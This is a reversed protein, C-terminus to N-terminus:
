TVTHGSRELEVLVALRLLPLLFEHRGVLTIGEKVPRGVVNTQARYQPIMDLNAAVLGELANGLNHAVNVAKLFVEPLVVASGVNLWVGGAMKGVASCLVRFDRHSAEGVPGPPFAPHMHVIDTGMAVHVTVPVRKRWATALISAERHPLAEAEILEGFAQGLGINEAQAREAARAFAQATEDALGFSGKPLAGAVDESTAGIRAIEYDHIAGAGSMAVLGVVGRGILDNVVPSLGCKIVHAGMAMAVLAGRRRAEAVHRALRRLDKGALINPLSELLAAASDGPEVLGAFDALHVLNERESLPYTRLEGLDVPKLFQTPEDPV